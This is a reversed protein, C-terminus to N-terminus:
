FYPMYTSSAPASLAPLFFRASFLSPRGSSVFRRFFPGCRTYTHISVECSHSVRRVFMPSPFCFVYLCHSLSASLSVSLCAQASFHFDNNGEYRKANPFCVCMVDPLPHILVRRVKTPRHATVLQQLLRVTPLFVEQRERYM